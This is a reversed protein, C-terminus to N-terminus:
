AAERFERLAHVAAIAGRATLRIAAWGRPWYDGEKPGFRWERATRRQTKICVKAKHFDEIEWGDIEYVTLDGDDTLRALYM